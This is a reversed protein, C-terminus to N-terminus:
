RAIKASNTQAIRTIKPKAVRTATRGRIAVISTANKITCLASGKPVLSAENINRPIKAQRKKVPGPLYESSWLIFYSHLFSAKNPRRLSIMM